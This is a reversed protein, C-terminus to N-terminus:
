KTQCFDLFDRVDQKNEFKILDDITIYEDTTEGDKDKRYLGFEELYNDDSLLIACKLKYLIFDDDGNRYIWPNYIACSQDAIQEYFLGYEEQEFDEVNEEKSRVAKRILLFCNIFVPNRIKNGASLYNKMYEFTYNIIISGMVNSKRKYVGYRYVDFYLSETLEKIVAEDSLGMGGEGVPARLLKGLYAECLGYKEDISMKDEYNDLGRGIMDSLEWLSKESYLEEAKQQPSKFINKLKNLFGM